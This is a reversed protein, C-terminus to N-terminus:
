RRWIDSPAITARTIPFSATRKLPAIASLQLMTEIRYVSMGWIFRCGSRMGLSRPTTTLTRQGPDAWSGRVMLWPAGRCLLHIPNTAILACREQSKGSCRMVFRRRVGVCSRAAATVARDAAPDGRIADEAGCGRGNPVHCLSWPPRGQDRDQGAEVATDDIVLARSGAADSM